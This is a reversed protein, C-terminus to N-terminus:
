VILKEIPRGDNYLRSYVDTCKKFKSFSKKAGVVDHYVKWYGCLLCNSGKNEIFGIVDEIPYSLFLGIEHPFGDADEIRQALRKLCEQTNSTDYGYKELFERNKENKLDQELKKRRYLYILSSEANKRLVSVYIDFTNFFANYEEAVKEIPCVETSFNFINGTKLGALTPSCYKIVAERFM